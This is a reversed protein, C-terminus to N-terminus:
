PSVSHLLTCDAGKGPYPAGMASLSTCSNPADSMPRTM